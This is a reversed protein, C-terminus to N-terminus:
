HSYSIGITSDLMSIKEQMQRRTRQADFLQKQLENLRLNTQIVEQKIDILMKELFDIKQVSRKMEQFTQSNIVNFISQEIRDVQATIKKHLSRELSDNQRILKNDIRDLRKKFENMQFNSDWNTPM